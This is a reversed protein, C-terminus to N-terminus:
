FERMAPLGLIRPLVYGSQRWTRSRFWFRVKRSSFPPPSINQQHMGGNTLLVLGPGHCRVSESLRVGALSRRSSGAQHARPVRPHSCAHGSRIGCAKTARLGPGILLRLCVISRGRHNFNGVKWREQERGKVVESELRLLSEM